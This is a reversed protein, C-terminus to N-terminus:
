FGFITILTYMPNFIVCENRSSPWPLAIVTHDFNPCQVEKQWFINLTLM